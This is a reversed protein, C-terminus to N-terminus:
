DVILKYTAHINLDEDERVLPIFIVKPNPTTFFDSSVLNGILTHTLTAPDYRMLDFGFQAEGSSDSSLTYFLASGGWAFAVVHQDTVIVSEAGNLMNKIVLTTNEMEEEGLTDTRLIAMYEGNPSLRFSGGTAFEHRLGGEPKIRFILERYAGADPDDEINTFYLDGNYFGLDGETMEREEVASIRATEDFITFDYKLLQQREEGTIAYIATGLPDWLFVSTQSGMGEEGLNDLSNTQLDYIYLYSSEM